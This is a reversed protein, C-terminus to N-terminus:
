NKFSHLMKQTAEFHECHHEEKPLSLWFTYKRKQNQFQNARSHFTTPKKYFGPACKFKLYSGSHSTTKNATQLFTTIEKGSLVLQEWSSIEGSETVTVSVSKTLDESNAVLFFLIAKSFANLGAGETIARKLPHTDIQTDIQTDVM